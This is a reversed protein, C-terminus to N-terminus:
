ESIMKYRKEFDDKNILDIKEDNKIIYHEEFEDIVLEGVKIFLSYTITKDNFYHGGNKTIFEAGKENKIFNLASQKTEFDKWYSGYGGNLLITWGNEMGDKFLEAEFKNGKKDIYKAM